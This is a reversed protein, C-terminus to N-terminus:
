YMGPNVHAIKKFSLTSHCKSCTYAANPTIRNFGEQVGEYFFDAKKRCSPCTKNRLGMMDKSITM